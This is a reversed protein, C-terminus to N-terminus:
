GNIEEPTEKNQYDFTLDYTSTRSNIKIGDVSSPLDDEIEEKNISLAQVDDTRSVDPKQITILSSEKPSDLSSLSNM